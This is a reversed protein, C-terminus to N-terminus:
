RGSVNWRWKYRCWRCCYNQSLVLIKYGSSLPM